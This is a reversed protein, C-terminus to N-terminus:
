VTFASGRVGMSINGKLIYERFSIGLEKEWAQIIEREADRNIDDLVIGCRESLMNEFFPGAPYRSHAIESQHAPPGDVLLMDIQTNGLKSGLVTTDYWPEKDWSFRTRCLPAHILTVQKDIKHDKIMEDLVEIWGEDNEITYLHGDARGQERLLSGICLTSVGGGCEVITSRRNVVIDNLVTSVATANLASDSWPIYPGDAILPQIQQLALGDRIGSLIHEWAVQKIHRKINM